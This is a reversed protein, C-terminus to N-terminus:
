RRPNKMIAVLGAFQGLLGLLMLVGSLVEGWLSMGVEQRGISALTFLLTGGLMVAMALRRNRKMKDFLDQM